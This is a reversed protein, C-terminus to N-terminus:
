GSGDTGYEVRMDHVNSSRNKKSRAKQYMVDRVASPKGADNVRKGAPVTVVSSWAPGTQNAGEIKLKVTPSQLATLLHEAELKWVTSGEEGVYDKTTASMTIATGNDSTGVEMQHITGDSQGIMLKDCDEEWNIATVALDYFSWHSMIFSYVAMIDPTTNGGSCYALFYRGKWVRGYCLNVANWNIPAYGNVTQGLFIGEIADSLKTDVGGFTTSYVGDRSLFIVGYESVCVSHPAPTGRHSPAEQVYFGSADNGLVQYKTSRTFIGCTGSHSLGCQLPDNPSGVELFNSPPFQEPLFRKSYWLYHPNSPDQVLFMTELHTWCWNANPPPDNDTELLDTLATDAQSSTGTTTGTAIMQDRLYTSGGSTTRYIIKHTVQSDTSDTLTSLSLVDSTLSATNSVPSPNSESCIVGGVVRAYTFRISYDGTLSGAAGVAM